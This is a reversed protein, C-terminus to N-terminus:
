GSCNICEFPSGQDISSRKKLLEAEKSARDEAKSDTASISARKVQEVDVTFKIADTAAKTRLYYMGTKLGLKWGHFHMSSLKAVTADIMHINTSQSQDIYIGREAAMDLVCRQKIECVTKYLEKLDKPIEEINQVSGNYAILKTRIDESWLNREILDMLLHRNVQVFEGSLVRRVYLNQTYPEFSENNGLIQATSATPM